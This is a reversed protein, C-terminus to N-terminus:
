RRKEDELEQKLRALAAFHNEVKVWPLQDGYVGELEALVQLNKAYLANLRKWHVWGGVCFLVAAAFNLRAMTSYGLRWLGEATLLPILPFVVYTLPLRWSRLREFACVQEYAKLGKVEIEPTLKM